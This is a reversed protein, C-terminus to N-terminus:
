ENLNPLSCDLWWKVDPSNWGCKDYTKTYYRTVKSTLINKGDWYEPPRHAFGVKGNGFLAVVERDIEPLDDGDAPKWLNENQWEAGKMFAQGLLICLNKRFENTPKIDDLNNVYELAAQMIEKNKEESM